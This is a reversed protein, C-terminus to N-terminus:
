VSAKAQSDLLFKRLEDTSNFKKLGQIQALSAMNEPYSNQNKLPIMVGPRLSQTSSQNSILVVGAIAVVAIM